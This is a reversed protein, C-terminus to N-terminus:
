PCDQGHWAESVMNLFYRHFRLDQTLEPHFASVLLNGQRAAVIHGDGPLRALIQVGEGVSEIYPARIFVARFPEEGLVPILLDVEFSDIQRGFANRRVVIDMVGMLPQEYPGIDKALLIMGACTGYIPLGRHALRRLEPLLDFRVLLRGITTSEGGPIMLGALGELEEVLRVPRGEVGLRHLTGLHEAFDGQLALVGVQLPTTGKRSQAFPISATDLRQGATVLEALRERDRVTM